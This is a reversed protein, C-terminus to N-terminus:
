LSGPACGPSVPLSHPSGLPDKKMGPSRDATTPPAAETPSTLPVPPAPAAPLLRRTAASGATTGAVPLPGALGTTNYGSGATPCRCPTSPPSPEAPRPAASPAARHAVTRIHVDNGPRVLRTRPAAKKRLTGRQCPAGRKKPSADAIHGDYRAVPPTHGAPRPPYLRPM